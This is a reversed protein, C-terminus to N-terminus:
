GFMVGKGKKKGTYVAAEEIYESNIDSIIESIKERRM